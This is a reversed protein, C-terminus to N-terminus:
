SHNSSGKKNLSLSSPQLFPFSQPLINQMNFIAYITLLLDHSSLAIREKTLHTRKVSPSLLKSFMLRYTFPFYGVFIDLGTRSMKAFTHLNFFSLFIYIYSTKTFFINRSIALLFTLM